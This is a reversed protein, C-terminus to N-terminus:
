PERIIPVEVPSCPLLVGDSPSEGQLLPQLVERGFRESFPAAGRQGLHCFDRLAEDPVWDRTDIIPMQYERGLGNLYSHVLARAQPPYWDRVASHEPMLLLAVKIGRARCEDLLERLAADSRPSIHLPSLLPKVEEIGRQLLQRQGESTAPGWTLPSWGTDDFPVWAGRVRAMEGLQQYTLLSQATAQVLRARYALIPLLSKRLGQFFITPKSSFYRCVLPIDRWHLEDESLVMKAEEFYGAEPWLPPWTEVILWDPRIGEALLRRFYMLERICGAGNLGFNYIVPPSAGAGPPMRMVAPWLGYKVRSSGLLLVLPANPSAALRARLSQLRIGYLPDRVELHRTDLYAWLAVQSAAFCALFWFVAKKGTTAPLLYVRPM